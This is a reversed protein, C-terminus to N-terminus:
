ATYFCDKAWRAPNTEMYEWIRQYDRENRIVHDHFSRQFLNADPGCLRATQSKFVRVVDSLTPAPSAGGASPLLRILLHIHNPMIVFKEVCVSPFASELSFIQAKAIQGYKTLHNEPPAFGAGVSIESLVCRRKQTCVTVFYAGPARYDFGKMRASKRKPREKLM